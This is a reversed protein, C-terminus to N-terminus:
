SKLTAEKAGTLNLVFIIAPLVVAKSPGPIASTHVYGLLSNWVRQVKAQIYM